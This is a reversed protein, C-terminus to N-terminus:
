QHQMSHNLMPLINVVLFMLLYSGLYIAITGRLINRVFVPRYQKSWEVIFVPLFILSLKVMVFTGIGYRLYFAMLPNGESASGANLFLLTTALDITCLGILVISEKTLTMEIAEGAGIFTIGKKYRYKETNYIKPLQILPHYLIERHWISM